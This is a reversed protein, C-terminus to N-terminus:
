RLNALILTGEFESRCIRVAVSGLFDGNREAMPYALLGLGAALLLALAGPEPVAIGTVAYGSAYSGYTNYTM